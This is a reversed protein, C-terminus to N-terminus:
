LNIPKQLFEQYSLINNKEIGHDPFVNTFAYYYKSHANKKNDATKILDSFFSLYKDNTEFVTAPILYKDWDISSRREFDEKEYLSLIVKKTKIKDIISKPAGYQAAAKATNEIGKENRIFLWSLRAHDDLFLYSGQRDFIYLECINNEYLYTNFLEIFNGDFLFSTKEEDNRSLIRAPIYSYWQFIKETRKKILELLKDIYYPDDKGIYVGNIGLKAIKAKFEDSIKGTLLIHAYQAIEAPFEMNRILDIGTIHPMDYDTIVISIEKFRNPNYIENRISMLDFQVSDPKEILCRSTFPLYHHKNKTYELAEEPREFCLLALKDSVEATLLKLFGKDDDVSLVIAPHYCVPMIFLSDDLSAFM